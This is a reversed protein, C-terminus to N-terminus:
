IVVRAKFVLSSVTTLLTPQRSVLVHWPEKAQGHSNMGNIKCTDDYQKTGPMRLQGTM